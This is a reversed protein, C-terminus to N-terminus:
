RGSPRRQLEHLLPQSYAIRGTLRGPDSSCLALAAEAMMDTPELNFGEVLEHHGAGPTAVNDWPALANVAIGAPALEVALATTLRDLGAKVTSYVSMHGYAHIKEFPPGIPHHASRSTINLIWGSGKKRMGPLLLQILEIPAWLQVEVMLDFRKEPFEEIPLLFTVAANNVLIDVPGFLDVAQEVLRRRDESKSIDCRVAEAVGGSSRITAVTEILSGPRGPEPELTRASVVVKAGAQALRRAIAEGIGRSAGTVIAVKGDCRTV